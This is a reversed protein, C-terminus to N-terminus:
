CDSRHTSGHSKLTVKVEVGINKAKYSSGVRKELSDSRLEKLEAKTLYRGDKTTSAVDVKRVVVVAENETM